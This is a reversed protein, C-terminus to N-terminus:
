DAPRRQAVTEKEDREDRARGERGVGLVEHCIGAKFGAVERTPCLRTALDGVGETVRSHEIRLKTAWRATKSAAASKVLGDRGHRALQIMHVKPKRIIVTICLVITKRSGKSTYGHERQPIPGGKWIGM